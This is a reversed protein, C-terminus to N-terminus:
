SAATRRGAAYGITVSLLITLGHWVLLHGFEHDNCAIQLAVAAVVAGVVGVLAGTRSWSMSYGRRVFAYTAGSTMAAVMLGGALCGVGHAVFNERPGAPFLWLVLAPFGAGIALIPLLPHVIQRSGPRISSSLSVASLLITGVWLISLCAAQLLSLGAWGRAGLALAFLLAVTAALGFAGAIIWPTSPLPTVPELDSHIFSLVADSVPAEVPSSPVPEAAWALLAGCPECQELHAQFGERRQIERVPVGESLLKTIEACTM